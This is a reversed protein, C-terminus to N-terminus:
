FIADEPVPPRETAPPELQLNELIPYGWTPAIQLEIDLPPELRNEEIYAEERLLNIILSIATPLMNAEQENWQWMEAIVSITELINANSIDRIRGIMILRIYGNDDVFIVIPQPLQTYGISAPFLGDPDVIQVGFTHENENAETLIETILDENFTYPNEIATAVTVVNPPYAAQPNTILKRLVYNWALLDELGHRRSVDGILYITYNGLFYPASWELADIDPLEWEPLPFVNLPASEPDIEEPMPQDMFVGIADPLANGDLVEPDSALGSLDPQEVLPTPATHSEDLSRTEILEPNGFIDRPDAILASEGSGIDDTLTQNLNGAQDEVAEDEIGETEEPEDAPNEEPEPEPIIEEDVVEPPTIDPEIIEPEPEPPQWPIIERLFDVRFIKIREPADFGALLPQSGWSANREGPEFLHVDLGRGGGFLYSLGFTVAFVLIHVAISVGIFPMLRRFYPDNWDELSTFEIDKKLASM